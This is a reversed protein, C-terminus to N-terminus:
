TVKYILCVSMSNEITGGLTGTKLQVIGEGGLMCKSLGLKLCPCAVKFKHNRRMFLSQQYRSLLLSGIDRDAVWFYKFILSGKSNFEICDQSHQWIATQLHGPGAWSCCHFNCHM